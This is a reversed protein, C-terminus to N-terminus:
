SLPTFNVLEKPYVRAYVCICSLLPVNFVWIPNLYLHYRDLFFQNMKLFFINTFTFRTYMFLSLISCWWGRNSTSFVLELKLTENM